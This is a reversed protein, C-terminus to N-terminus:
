ATAAPADAGGWLNMTGLEDRGCSKLYLFLQTRYAAYGCLVLNVIFAGRTTPNGWAAIPERFVADPVDGLLRAYEDRQAGIAALTQEFDRAAGITEKATWAAPDFQGSPSLAVEVLAPGM